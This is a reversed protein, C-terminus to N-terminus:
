RMELRFAGTTAGNNGKVIWRAGSLILGAAGPDEIATGVLDDNTAFFSALGSVLQYFSKAKQFYKQTETIKVEQGSTWASYFGDVAKFLNTVRDKDVRIQCPGDDDELVLLRLGQGPHQAAFSALQTASFMLVSGSWTLNDQNFSYPWGAKEGVCQYSVLETTGTKQGLIHVEFEPAGKLWSEFKDYFRTGTLYLGLNSGAPPPTPPPESVDDFGIGMACGAECPDNDAGEWTQVALVPTVPPRDPDLLQQRGQLDFAVPIEGDQRATAVLINAGGHWRARHEPVPFYAEMPPAAALDALIQDVPAGTVQAMRALARRSNKFLFRQLQVRQERQRSSTIGTLLEDRFGPDALALAVQRALRQDRARDPDPPEQWATGQALEPRDPALPRTTDACAAALLLAAALAGVRLPTYM